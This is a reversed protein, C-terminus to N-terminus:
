KFDSKNFRILSIIFSGAALATPLIIAAAMNMASCDVPEGISGGIIGALDGGPLAKINGGALTDRLVPYIWVSASLIGKYTNADLNGQRLQVALVISILSMVMSLASYIIVGLPGSFGHGKMISFLAYFFTFVAFDSLTCFLFCFAFSGGDFGEGPMPASLVGILGLGLFIAIQLIYYNFLSGVYLSLFIQKRSHGSVVYNRLAGSTVETRYNMAGSFAFLTLPLWPIGNLLGNGTWGLMAASAKDMSDAFVGFALLAFGVILSLAFVIGVQVFFGVSHFQRYFYSRLLSKM